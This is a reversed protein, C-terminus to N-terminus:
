DKLNAPNISKWIRIIDESTYANYVGGGNSYDLLAEKIEKRSLGIYPTWISFIADNSM